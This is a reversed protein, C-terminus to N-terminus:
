ESWHVVLESRIMRFAEEKSMPLVVRDFPYKEHYFLGELTKGDKSIVEYDTLVETIPNNAEEGNLAETDWYIAQEEQQNNGTHRDVRSTHIREPLSHPLIPAPACDGIENHDQLYSEILENLNELKHSQVKTHLLVSNNKLYRVQKARTNGNLDQIVKYIHDRFWLLVAGATM